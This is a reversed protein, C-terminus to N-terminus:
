KTISEIIEFNTTRSGLDYASSRECNVTIKITGDGELMESFRETLLAKQDDTLRRVQIFM